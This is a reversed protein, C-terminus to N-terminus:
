LLLVAALTGVVLGPGLPFSRRGLLALPLLIALTVLYTLVTGALVYRLGHSALVLGAIAGLKIDGGGLGRGRSLVYLLLYFGGAAVAGIAERLLRQADHEALAQVLCAATVAVATAGVLANPLRKVAVDVVGLLVATAAFAAVPLTSLHWGLRLVVGALLLATGAGIPYRWTRVVPQWAPKPGPATDAPIVADAHLDPATTM